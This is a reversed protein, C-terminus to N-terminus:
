EYIKNIDKTNFEIDKIDLNTIKDILSPIVINNIVRLISRGGYKVDSKNLIYQILLDRDTLKITINKFSENLKHDLNQEAITTLSERTHNPFILIKDIRNIFEKKIGNEILTEVYRKNRDKEDIELNEQFGVIGLNGKDLLDSSLNSTLIIICKSLDYEIGFSDVFKGRDLINLIANLVEPHAKEIEDFLIVSAPKEKLEKIFYTDEKYGIYGPSSGILKNVHIANTYENMDLRILKDASGYAQEALIRALLTKGTGTQGIAMVVALPKNKLYLGLHKKLILNTVYIKNDPALTIDKELTHLIQNKLEPIDKISKINKDKSLVKIYTDIDEIPEHRLNANIPYALLQVCTKLNPNKINDLNSIISNVVKEYQFGPYVKSKTILIEKIQDEKLPKFSYHHFSNSLIHKNVKNLNNANIALITVVNLYDKILSDLYTSYMTDQSFIPALLYEFDDVIIIHKKSDKKANEVLQLYKPDKDLLVNNKIYSPFLYVELDQEDYNAELNEKLFQLFTTVGSGTNGSIVIPGTPYVRNLDILSMLDLLEQDRYLIDIKRNKAVTIHSQLNVTNTKSIDASPLNSPVTM